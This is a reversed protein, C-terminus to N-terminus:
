RKLIGFLYREFKKYYEKVIDVESVRIIISFIFYVVLGIITCVCLQLFIGLFKQMNVAFSLLHRSLYVFVSMILSNVLVRFIFNWLKDQTKFKCKKSLSTGLLILNIINSITFAIAIGQIGYFKSMFYALGVNIIMSIISIVVPTKTDELAYFARSIVPILCQFILSISCYGLVQATYYTDHWDFSGSGLIVRVIQARLIIIIISIPVVIFIIKKVNRIIYEKLHDKDDKDALDSMIPFMAISLSVGFISVVFSQLNLGFTFVAISGVALSSAIMTIIVQNIQNAALGFTRPIMLMFVRKVYFDKLNLLLKYKWGHKIVAILQLFFHMFSGAVVGWALAELGYYKSAIIGAIIGINYFLPALSYVFYSKYSNLLSSMVNSAGFIVISILMIETLRTTLAFQFENFGPVLIRIFFDIKFYIILALITLVIIITNLISNSANIAREKDNKNLKVFVPVFASALAGLILTNFILDPIKFSAFYSDLIEGAGYIHALMRDRLLGLLKSLVSFVSILIAGGIATTNLKKLLTKLM